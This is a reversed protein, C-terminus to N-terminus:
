DIDTKCGERCKIFSLWKGKQQKGGEMCGAVNWAYPPNATFTYTRHGRPSLPRATVISDKDVGIGSRFTHSAKIDSMHSKEEWERMFANLIGTGKHAPEWAHTIWWVCWLCTSLPALVDSLSPSVEGRDNVEIGDKSCGVKKWYEAGLMYWPSKKKWPCVQHM